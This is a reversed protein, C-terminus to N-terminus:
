GVPPAAEEEATPEGAIRFLQKRFSGRHDFALIHLNGDYGLAM